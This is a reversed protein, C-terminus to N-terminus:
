ILALFCANVIVCAKDSSDSILKGTRNSQTYRSHNDFVALDFLYYTVSEYLRCPHLYLLIIGCTFLRRSKRYGTVKIYEPKGYRLKFLVETKRHKQKRM